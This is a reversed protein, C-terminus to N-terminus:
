SAPYFACLVCLTNGVLLQFGYAAGFAWVALHLTDTERSLNIAKRLHFLGRISSFLFVLSLIYPHWAEDHPLHSGADKFTLTYTMSPPNANYEELMCDMIVAYYYHTSASGKPPSPVDHTFTFKAGAGHQIRLTYTALRARELCLSGDQLIKRYTEWQADNYFCISLSHRGTAFYNNGSQAEFIGTVSGQGSSSFAFKALYAETNQSTLKVEGDVVKSLAINASILLFLADRLAVMERVEGPAEPARGKSAKKCPSKLFPVAM